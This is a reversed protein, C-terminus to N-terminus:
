NRMGLESNSHRTGKRCGVPRFSAGRGGNGPFAQPCSIQQITGKALQSAPSNHFVVFDSPILLRDIAGCRPESLDLSGHGLHNDPLVPEHLRQQHRHQAASMHEELADRAQGLGEGHSGQSTHNPPTELTELEGWIQERGIDGAGLDEVRLCRLENRMASRDEAVQHQGVLDVTRRCLDLRGEQLRHLLPLHGDAVRGVIQRIGEDHQRGLIWSSRL